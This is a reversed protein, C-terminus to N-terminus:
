FEMEEIAAVLKQIDAAYLGASGLNNVEIVHLERDAGVSVDLAYARQPQWPHAALSEAFALVGSDSRGEYVVREGRKYLSNTVARGDVIWFRHEEVIKRLPGIVIRTDPQISPEVAPDDWLKRVQSHWELFEDRRTPGAKWLKNDEAPRCFFQEPLSSLPVDAFRWVAAAANLLADGWNRVHDLHDHEVELVGPVWGKRRAEHRIAYAGIVIVNGAPNAEPVLKWDDGLDHFSHPIGLRQLSEALERVGPESLMANQIMWHM